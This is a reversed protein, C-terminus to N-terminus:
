HTPELLVGNHSVTTDTCVTRNFCCPRRTGAKLKSIAVEVRRKRTEENKTARIWRIWDWRAMPTITNWLATGESSAALANKLDKPVTPNPWNKTPEVVLTVSDGEKVKAGKVMMSDVAFWHSGMGDPELPIKVPQGNMTGEVMTMGRSPLKASANKPLKVIASSGIKVVTAEAHITAM